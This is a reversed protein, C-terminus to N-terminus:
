LTKTLFAFFDENLSREAKDILPGNLSETMNEDDESDSNGYAENTKLNYCYRNGKPFFGELKKSNKPLYYYFTVPHEWDGGSYGKLYSFGNQEILSLSYNEGDFNVGTTEPTIQKGSESERFDYGLHYLDVENPLEVIGNLKNIIFTWDKNEFLATMEEKTFPQFKNNNPLFTSTKYDFHIDSFKDSLNENIEELNENLYDSVSPYDGNEISCEMDTLLSTGMLCALLEDKSALKDALQSFDFGSFFNDLTLQGNKDELISIKMDNVDNVFIRLSGGTEHKTKSLRKWKIKKDFHYTEALSEIFIKNEKTSMIHVESRFNIIHTVKVSSLSFIM